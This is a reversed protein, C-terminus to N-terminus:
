DPISVGRRMTAVAEERSVAKGNVRWHEGDVHILRRDFGNSRLDQAPAQGIEGGQVPGNAAAAPGEHCCGCGEGDNDPRPCPAPRGNHWLRQHRHQWWQRLRHPRESWRRAIRGGFAEADPTAVTSLLLLALVGGAMARFFSTM